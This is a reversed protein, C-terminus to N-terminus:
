GLLSLVHDSTPRTGTVQLAKRAAAGRSDMSEQALSLNQQVAELSEGNANPLMLKAAMYQAIGDFDEEPVQLLDEDEDLVPHYTYASVFHSGDASAPPPWLAIKTPSLPYWHQVTGNATTLYDPFRDRIDALLTPGAEWAINCLPGLKGNQTLFVQTIEVCELAFAGGALDYRYERTGVVPTFAVRDSFFSLTRRSFDRLVKNAIKNLDAEESVYTQGRQECLRLAETRLEELNM